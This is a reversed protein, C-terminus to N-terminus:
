MWSYLDGDKLPQDNATYHLVCTNGGGAIIPHYAFGKSGSRIFEHIFEAEIEWEGVGNKVRPLIRRFGAETIRCAKEIFHIEEASKQARLKHLLPALRQYQHLSFQSKCEKIFRDNLTEVKSDARPHENTPLYINETQPILRDLAAHFASTWQVNEIGTRETAQAKTLKAGEWIAITPNTERVFLIERDSPDHADPFLLLITEEQAVGTLYFLDNSQKFPLTADANTPYIDNSHVIAISSEKLLTALNERHTSFLASTPTETRM